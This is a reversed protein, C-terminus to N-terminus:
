GWFSSQLDILPCLLTTKYLWPTATLGSASNLGIWDSKNYLYTAVYALLVFKGTPYTSRPDRLYREVAGVTTPSLWKPTELTWDILPFLGEYIPVM